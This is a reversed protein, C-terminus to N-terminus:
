RNAASVGCESGNTNNHAPFRGDQKLRLKKGCSPCPNGSRTRRCKRGPATATYDTTGSGPCVKQAWGFFETEASYHKPVTGDKNKRLEFCCYGCHM